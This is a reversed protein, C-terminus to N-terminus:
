KRMASVQLNPYTDLCVYLIVVAPNSRRLAHIFFPVPGTWGEIVVLDWRHAHLGDYSYPAFIRTEGIGSLKSFARRLGNTTIESGAVFGHMAYNSQAHLAVNLNGQWDGDVLVLLALLALRLKTM